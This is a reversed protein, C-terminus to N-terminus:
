ILCSRFPETAFMSCVVILSSRGFIGRTECQARGHQTNISLYRRIEQWYFYRYWGYSGLCSRSVCTRATRDALNTRTVKAHGHKGTKSTSMEMIKCPRSKLMVFGNKRLASCQQPYSSIIVPRSCNENSMRTSSQGNFKRPQHELMVARFIMTMTIMFTPLLLQTPWSSRKFEITLVTRFSSNLSLHFNMTSRCLCFCFRRSKANCM